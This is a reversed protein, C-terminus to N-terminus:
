KNAFPRWKPSIEDIQLTDTLQIISNEEADFVFLDFNGNPNSSFSLYRGDLSWELDRVIVNRENAFKWNALELVAKIIGSNDLYVNWIQYLGNKPSVVLSVFKGDPFLEIQKIDNRLLEIPNAGNSEILWLIQEDIAETRTLFLILNDGPLWAISNNPLTGIIDDTGVPIIPVTQSNLYTVDGSAIEIIGLGNFPLRLHYALFSGNNSWSPNTAIGPLRDERIFFRPNEGNQEAVFVSPAFLLQGIEMPGEQFESIFAVLKSKASWTPAHAHSYFTYKPPSLFPAVEETAGIESIRARVIIDNDLNYLLYDGGESWELGMVDRGQEHPPYFMCGMHTTIAEPILKTVPYAQASLPRSVFIKWAPGYVSNREQQDYSCYAMQYTDLSQAFPLAVSDILDISIRGTAEIQFETELTNNAVCAMTGFLCTMFFGLSKVVRNADNIQFPFHKM